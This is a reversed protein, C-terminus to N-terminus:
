RSRRDGASRAARAQNDRAIGDQHERSKLWATALDRPANPVSFYGQGHLTVLAELMRKRMEMAGVAQELVAQTDRATLWEGMAASYKPHRLVAAKVSPDTVKELGYKGPNRRVKIDLEAEIIEKRLKAQDAATRADIAKEAYKFFLYPQELCAIDLAHPDIKRDAEFELLDM